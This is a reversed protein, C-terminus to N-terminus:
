GHDKNTHGHEKCLVLVDVTHAEAACETHKEAVRDERKPDLADNEPVCLLGRIHM